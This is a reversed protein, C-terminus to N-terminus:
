YCRLKLLQATEHTATYYNYWFAKRSHTISIKTQFLQLGYITQVDEIRFYTYIERSVRLITRTNRM